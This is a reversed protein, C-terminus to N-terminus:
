NLWSRADPGGALFAEGNYELRLGLGALLTPTSSIM